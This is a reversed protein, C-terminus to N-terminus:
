CGNTSEVAFSRIFGLIHFYRILVVDLYRFTAPNEMIRRGLYLWLTQFHERTTTRMEEGWQSLAYVVTQFKSGAILM